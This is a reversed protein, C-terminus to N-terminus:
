MLINDFNIFIGICVCESVGAGHQMTINEFLLLVCARMITILKHIIRRQIDYINFM